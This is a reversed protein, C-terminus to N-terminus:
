KNHKSLLYIDLEEKTKFSLRNKLIYERRKKVEEIAEQESNFVKWKRSIINEEYPYERMYHVKYKGNKLRSYGKCIKNCMNGCHDTIVLNKVRNDTGDGNIHDVFWESYKPESLGLLVRHYDVRKSGNVYSKNSNRMRVTYNDSQLVNISHLSNDIKFYNNNKDEVIYFSNDDSLTMKYSFKKNTDTNYSKRKKNNVILNCKRNDFYKNALNLENSVHLIPTNRTNKLGLVIQHLSMKLKSCYLKDKNFYWTNSKILSVIEKNGDFAFKENKQTWGFWCNYESIYEFRNKSPQKYKVVGTFNGNLFSCCQVKYEFGNCLTKFYSINNVKFYKLIQVKYYCGMYLIDLTMGEMNKNSVKTNIKPLETM